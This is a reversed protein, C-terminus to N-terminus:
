GRILELKLNLTQLVSPTYYRGFFEDKTLLSKKITHSIRLEPEMLKYVQVKHKKVIIDIESPSLKKMFICFEKNDKNLKILFQEGLKERKLAVLKDIITQDSFTTLRSINLNDNLQNIEESKMKFTNGHDMKKYTKYQWYHILEHTLTKELEQDSICILESLTISCQGNKIKCIGRTKTMRKSISFTIDNINLCNDFYKKNYEIAKEKIDKINM